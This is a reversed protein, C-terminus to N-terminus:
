SFSINLGYWYRYCWFVFLAEFFYRAIIALYGFEYIAMAISIVSGVVFGVLEVIFITDFEKFKEFYGRRQVNLSSIVVFLCFIILPFLSINVKFIDEINSKFILLIFCIFLALVVNLLHLKGLFQLNADSKLFSNTLGGELLPVFLQYAIFIVAFVGIEGPSIYRGYIALVAFMGLIRIFKGLLTYSVATNLHM